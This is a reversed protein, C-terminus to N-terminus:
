TAAGDCKMYTESYVVNEDNSLGLNLTTGPDESDDALGAFEEPHIRERGCPGKGM